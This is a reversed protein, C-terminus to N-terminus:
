SARWLYPFLVVGLTGSGLALVGLFAFHIATDAVIVGHILDDGLSTSVLVIPLILPLGLIATLGFGAGARAAILSLLTLTTGLALATLAMGGVFAALRAGDLTAWGLLLGMFAAVACALGALIAVHHMMRAVMYHIPHVTTRLYALVEPRDEELSRSVGNFATFLLIVWAMANWTEPDPRGQVVQYVAYVTAVAFLLLGALGHKSKLEARWMHRFLFLTHRM